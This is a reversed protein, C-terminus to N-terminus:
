KDDLMIKNVAILRTEGSKFVVEYEILHKNEVWSGDKDLIKDYGLCTIEAVDDLSANKQGGQELVKEIARLEEKTLGFRETETSSIETITKEEDCGCFLFLCVCLLVIFRKM